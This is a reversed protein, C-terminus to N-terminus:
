GCGGGARVPRGGPAGRGALPGGRALVPGAGVRWLLFALIAAGGVTRGWARILRTAPRGAGAPVPAPAGAAAPEPASARHVDRHLHPRGRLADGESVHWLPQPNM